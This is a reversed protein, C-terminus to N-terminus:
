QILIEAHRPDTELEIREGEDAGHPFWRVLRNLYIAEQLDGMEANPGLVATTKVLLYRSLEERFDESM